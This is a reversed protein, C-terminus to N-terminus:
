MTGARTSSRSASGVVGFPLTSRRASASSAAADPPATAVGRARRRAPSRARAAARRAPRREDGRGQAPQGLRGVPGAGARQGPRPPHPRRVRRGQRRGRDGDPLHRRRPRRAGDRGPAAALLERAQEPSLPSRTEVNVAESHGNVVPVRVCTASIRISDDGLIKRTENILKREEDTHDDGPAFTGAHPLANFAIQHAYVEVPAQATSCRTRRGLLEDVGKKGTGSVAQYTSVVLREIGAADHLPKLAVVMQMTSCNPNAVIGKRADALADPNVESVVLPVDDDMRWKSSNDVVIAGADAFRPAWAGSTSGGASFIALDFGQITEDSLPQVVGVGEITTGASRESAFPVIERAPFGRERLLRLMVGGVQGTAGVVAVRYGDAAAPTSEDRGSGSRGSRGPDRGRGARVCRAARAGRRRRPRRPDRVLDQDALDLDDRHQDRREALVAFVKAAVGPHSKMGAGVISVKGMEPESDLGGIGLEAVIPELAERAIRLDDRPVTFSLEAGERGEGLPENQIIMDVNCNAEALAEFIRAAAGPEDPVRQLTLRAEDNSHTVATILAHEMTEQEGVVFTGPGDEFSSRCHIRVGHNRAYEVSRLQLVKAGSAAMELMEEFSVIELKRADPVIRPDASYVGSVDTYIECVDAGVAAALAVATTDSGGRGLTTVDRNTSMGQFGAVLVIMDEELAAEIREARVDLIRAKTHSTDTVIGAQSGTLSIARHGLDNIAMACLACSIREGTSLLMDMERPDPTPSIEDAAAILEDTTKGRASLVAVVRNGQERAAVIRRAARKLREADAVSTGGFKM